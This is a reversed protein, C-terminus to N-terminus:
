GILTLTLTLTLTLDLEALQPDKEDLARDSVESLITFRKPPKPPDSTVTAPKKVDSYLVCNKGYMASSRSYIWHCGHSECSSKLKNWKLCNEGRYEKYEHTARCRNKATIGLACKGSVCHFDKKCYDGLQGLKGAARDELIEARRKLEASRGKMWSTYSSSIGKIISAGKKHMYKLGATAKKGIYEILDLIMNILNCVVCVVCRLATFILQAIYKFAEVAQKGLRTLGKAIKEYLKQMISQGKAAGKLVEKALDGSEDEPKAANDKALVDVANQSYLVNGQRPDCVFSVMPNPFPSFAPAVAWELAYARQIVMDPLAASRELDKLENEALHARAKAMKGLGTSGDDLGCQDCNFLRRWLARANHPVSEQHKLDKKALRVAEEDSMLGRETIQGLTGLTNSVMAKGTKAVSRFGKFVTNPTYSGKKGAKIEDQLKTPM